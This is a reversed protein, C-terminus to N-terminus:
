ENPQKTVTEEGSNNRSDLMKDVDVTDDTLETDLVVADIIRRGLKTFCEEAVITKPDALIEDIEEQTGIVQLEIHLKVIGKM